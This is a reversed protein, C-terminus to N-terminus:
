RRRGRKRPPVGVLPRLMLAASHWVEAAAVSTLWAICDPDISGECQPRLQEAAVRAMAEYSIMQGIVTTLGYFSDDHPRLPTPNM